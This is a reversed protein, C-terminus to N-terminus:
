TNLIFENGSKVTLTSSCTPCVFDISGNQEITRKCEECFTSLKSTEIKFETKEFQNNEKKFVQKVNSYNKIVHM